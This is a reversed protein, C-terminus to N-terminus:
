AAPEHESLYRQLSERRIRLHGNKGSGQVYALVGERCLRRVTDNTFGTLQAVEPVSLMSTDRKPASFPQGADIYAQLDAEAVLRQKNMWGGKCSAIDGRALRRYVQHVSLGLRAAVEKPGLMGTSNM